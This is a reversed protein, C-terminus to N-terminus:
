EKVIRNQADVKVVTPTLRRAEEDTFIGYSIVIILDGPAGLRAAAGNLCMVGSDRKGTIVYTELRGGTNVNVVSVKENPLIDAAEMLTEDVTLSGAYNLNAETLTARHIKSKHMLRLM